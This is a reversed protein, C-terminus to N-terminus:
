MSFQDNDNSRNIRARVGNASTLVAFAYQSGDPSVRSCPGRALRMVILMLGRIRSTRKHCLASMREDGPIDAKPPLPSLAHPAGNGVKRVNVVTALDRDIIVLPLSPTM